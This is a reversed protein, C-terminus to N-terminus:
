DTSAPQPNLFTIKRGHGPSQVSNWSTCCNAIRSRVRTRHKIDPDKVHLRPRPLIVLSEREGKTRNWDSAWSSSVTFIARCPPPSFVGLFSSCSRAAACIWMLIPWIWLYQSSTISSPWTLSYGYVCAVTRWQLAGKVDSGTVPTRRWPSQQPFQLCSHKTSAEPIQTQFEPIKVLMSTDILVSM